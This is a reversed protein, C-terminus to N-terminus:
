PVLNAPAASLLFPSGPAPTLNGNLSDVRFIEVENIAGPSQMPRGAVFLYKGDRSFKVLQSNQQLLYTSNPLQSLMGNSLRFITLGQVGTAAV